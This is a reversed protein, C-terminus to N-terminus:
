SNLAVRRSRRMCRGIWILCGYDSAVLGDYRFPPTMLQMCNSFATSIELNWSWFDSIDNVLFVWYFTKKKLKINGKSIIYVQFIKRSLNQWSPSRLPTSYWQILALYSAALVDNFPTTCREKENPLQPLFDNDSVHEGIGHGYLYM